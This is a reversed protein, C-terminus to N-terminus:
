DIENKSGEGGYNSTGLGLLTVLADELIVLGVLVWNHEVNGGESTDGEGSRSEVVDM